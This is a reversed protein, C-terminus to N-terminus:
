KDQQKWFFIIILAIPSFVGFMRTTVEFFPLGISLRNTKFFITEFLFEYSWDYDMPSTNLGNLFIFLLQTYIFWIFVKQILTREQLWKM